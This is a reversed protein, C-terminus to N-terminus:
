TKRRRKVFGAMSGLGSVLLVVTAPEPVENEAARSIPHVFLLLEYPQGFQLTVTQSIQRQANLLMSDNPGIRLNSDFSFIGVNLVQLTVRAESVAFLSFQDTVLNQMTQLLATFNVDVNGSGGTITFSERLVAQGEAEAFCGCGTANVNSTGSFSLNPFDSVASASAFAVSASAQSLTPSEHQDGLDQFDNAAVASAATRSGAPPLSFVVIGSAPILQLNTLNVSTIAITDAYAASSTGLLLGLLLVCTGLLNRRM